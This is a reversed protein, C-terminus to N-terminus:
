DTPESIHILSLNPTTTFSVINPLAPLNWALQLQSDKYVYANMVETQATGLRIHTVETTLTGITLSM